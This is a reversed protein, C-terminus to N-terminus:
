SNPVATNKKSRKNLDKEEERRRKVENKEKM